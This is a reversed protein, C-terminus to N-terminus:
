YFFDIKELHHCFIHSTIFVTKIQQNPSARDDVIFHFLFLFDFRFQSFLLLLFPRWASSWIHDIFYVFSYFWLLCLVCQRVYRDIKLQKNIKESILVYIFFSIRFSNATERRAWVIWMQLFVGCMCMCICLSYKHTYETQHSAM